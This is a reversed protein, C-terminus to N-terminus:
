EEEGVVGRGDASSGGGDVGGVGRVGDRDDEGMRRLDEVFNSGLLM